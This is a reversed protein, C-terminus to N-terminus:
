RTPSESAKSEWPRLAFLRRVKAAIAAPAALAIAAVLWLPRNAAAAVAV